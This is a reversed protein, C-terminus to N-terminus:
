NCGSNGRTTITSFGKNKVRKPTINRRKKNNDEQTHVNLGTAYNIPVDVLNLDNTILSEMVHDSTKSEQVVNTAQSDNFFTKPCTRRGPSTDKIRAQGLQRVKQDIRGISGSDGMSSEEMVWQLNGNIDIKGKGKEKQIASIPNSPQKATTDGPAKEMIMSESPRTGEKELVKPSFLNDSDSMATGNGINWSKSKSLVFPNDLDIFNFKSSSPYISKDNVQLWIGFSPVRNGSDDEVTQIPGSCGRAEHGLRGCNFCIFPLRDYRFPLWIKRGDSPFLFGPCLPKNIDCWVKFTFFGKAVIRPIDAKQVEILDGALNALREMNRQTISRTPLHLIRGSIPFRTLVSEWDTPLQNMRELILTGNNLFWHNKTLIRNLDQTSKFSFVLFMSEKITFKIEVGWNKESIGWVRGLITRLLSRSMPRNSILRGIACLKEVAERGEENVEWEDEDLVSLNHTRSLLDDMTIEPTNPMGEPLSKECSLM